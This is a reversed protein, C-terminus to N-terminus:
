SLIQLFRIRITWIEKASPWDCWLFSLRASGVEARIAVKVMVVSRLTTLGARASVGACRGLMTTIPAVVDSLGIDAGVRVAQHAELCGVDVTNGFFADHEGIIVSLLASPRGRRM